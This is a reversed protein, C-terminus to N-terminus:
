ENAAQARELGIRDWLDKPPTASGWTAAFTPGPDGSEVYHGADGCDATGHPMIGEDGGPCGGLECRLTKQHLKRVPTVLICDTYLLRLIKTKAFRLQLRLPHEDLVCLCQLYECM